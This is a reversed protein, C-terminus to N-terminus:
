NRRYVAVDKHSTCSSCKVLVFSRVLSRRLRYGVVEM